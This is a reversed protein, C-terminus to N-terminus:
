TDAGTVRKEGKREREPLFCTMGEDERIPENTRSYHFLDQATRLPALRRGGQKEGRWQIADSISSSSIQLDRIWEQVRDGSGQGRAEGSLADSRM